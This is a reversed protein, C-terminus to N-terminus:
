PHNLHALLRRENMVFDLSNKQLVKAKSFIKMAFIESDKRRKVRWVEGYGGTGVVCKLDFDKLTIQCTNSQNDKLNCTGM